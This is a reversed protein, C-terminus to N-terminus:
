LREGSLVYPGHSEISEIESEIHLDQNPISADRADHTHPIEAIHADKNSSAPTFEFVRVECNLYATGQLTLKLLWRTRMTRSTPCYSPQHKGRAPDDGTWDETLYHLFAGHTILLIQFKATLSSNCIYKHMIAIDAPM